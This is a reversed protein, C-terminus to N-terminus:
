QVEDPPPPVQPEGGLRLGIFDHFILIKKCFKKDVYNQMNTIALFKKEFKQCNDIFKLNSLIQFAHFNANKQSKRSRSSPLHFNCKKQFFNKQHSSTSRNM